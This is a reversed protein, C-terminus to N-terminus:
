CLPARWCLPAACRRLRAIACSRVFPAPAAASFLAQVAACPPVLAAACTSAQASRSGLLVVRPPSVQLIPVFSNAWEIAQLQRRLELEESLLLNMKRQTEDQLQFLAEQLKQYLAEEVSASNAQVAKLKDDIGKLSDRIARQREELLPDREQSANLAAEYHDGIDSLMKETAAGAAPGLVSLADSVRAKIDSLNISRPPMAPAPAGPAFTFHVVHRPLVQASDFIVYTHRYAGADAAAPAGGEGSGAGQEVGDSAEHLYLSDFGSPLDRKAAPDDLVYSRGVALSVLLYQHSEAFSPM